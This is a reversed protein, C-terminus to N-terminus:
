AVERIESEIPLRSDMDLRFIGYPNIHNFFLPTLARFDETTMHTRISRGQWNYKYYAQRPVDLQESLHRIIQKPIEKRSRPFRGEHQFFKFMVAFGIRSPTPKKILLALEESFLTFHETLEHKPYIHKM